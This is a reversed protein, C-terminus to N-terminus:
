PKSLLVVAQCAIAEGRGIADLGENTAAKIGVADPAIGCLNAISARIAAKHAALRPKEALVTVDVNVLRFGAQEVRQRVEALFRGSAADKYRADTDPFLEGIDGLGAAGLLADCIAHLVVDADSHGILGMEWPITVGGLVLRRGLGTRHIDYGTGVRLSQMEFDQKYKVTRSKVAKPRVIPVTYSTADAANAALRSNM